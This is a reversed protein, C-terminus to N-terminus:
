DQLVRDIEYKQLELYVQMGLDTLHNRDINENPQHISEIIGKKKLTEITLSDAHHYENVFPYNYLFQIVRKEDANLNLATFSSYCQELNTENIVM